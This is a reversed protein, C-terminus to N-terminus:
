NKKVKQWIAEIVIAKYHTKFISQIIRGVQEKEFNNQGNYNRQREMQFRSDAQHFHEDSLQDLEKCGWPSYHGYFELPANFHAAMEKELPGKWGLSRVWTEWMAPLNKVM